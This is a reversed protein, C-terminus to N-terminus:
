RSLSYSFGFSLTRCDLGSSGKFLPTLTPRVFIGVGRYAVTASVGLQCSRFGTLAHKRKPHKRIADAGLLFDSHLALDVNLRKVPRYGFRLVLGLSSYVIKSKDASPDLALPVIRQGDNVVTIGNDALRINDLTYQMGLDLSTKRQRGMNMRLAMPTFSFHFSPGLRQDLFDGTGAEYGEYELGTLQTFGFEFHSIFKLAFRSRKDRQKSMHSRNLTLAFGGVELLMRGQKGGDRLQMLEGAVTDIRRLTDIGSVDRDVAGAYLSDCGCLGSDGSGVRASGGSESVRVPVGAGGSSRESVYNEAEGSGWAPMAAPHAAAMTCAGLLAATLLVRKM